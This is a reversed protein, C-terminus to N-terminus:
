PRWEERFGAHDDRAAAIFGIAAGIAWRARGAAKIESPEGGALAIRYMPGIDDMILVIDRMAQVYRRQEDTAAAGAAEDLRAKAFEIMEGATDSVIVETGAHVQHLVPRQRRTGSAAANGRASRGYRCGLDLRPRNPIFYLFVSGSYVNWGIPEASM